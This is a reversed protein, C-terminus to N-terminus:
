FINKIGSLIGKGSFVIGGLIAIAGAIKLILPFKHREPPKAKKQGVYLDHEMQNFMKDGERASYLVCKPLKNPPNLIGVSHNGYHMSKNAPNDVQEVM